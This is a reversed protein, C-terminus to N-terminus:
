GNSIFELLLRNVAEPADNQVWHSADALREVRLDPVWPGLRETLRVGLYPDREGWILLTPASIPRLNRLAGRAHRFAARYYNLAATRAGPRALAEKYLRIDSPTFAGPRVPQRRFARDLLAYDGAQLLWEPIAPVQFFLVYWSRLWQVPKQLERLFAAPHPANLVVLKQVVEPRRMAVAWAIAGGWDHGVVVAREGGAHRLLGVVDEVLLEVRYSCVGRPKDSENYGRLDPAIVHFGAAALPLIQHRWSYWFEPFGHLLILPPGRGAEVYHFWLCNIAVRRHAWAPADEEV